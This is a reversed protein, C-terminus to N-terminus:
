ADYACPPQQAFEPILKITVDDSFVNYTAEAQTPM